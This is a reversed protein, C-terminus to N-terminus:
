DDGVSTSPAAVLKKAEDVYSLSQHRFYTNYLVAYHGNKKLLGEHDGEEIIKGEELVIIRDASRVTSLRHAILISTSDKLIMNLTEQIQSETFPDVSATAEDLIFIAPQRILVRMLSVLQRVGMSLRNGREGVETQLGDPLTELWDGDGIRHALMDIEEDTIDPDAYRINDAVTGSFLFPMQPVIGLQTRYSELDFSRLDDGDILIKGEQFEYFRAILKAISSKGAGTHGVLALNESPNIHLDFDELVPEDPKYQFGVHSFEIEGSLLRVTKNDHQVVLSEADILAFVREAASLGNQVQTWFASLNLIPFWFRDLSTIFLYWAGVTILGQVVNLGGVYVLIATGVGGLANLTPFVSSLVLGRRVNIKYSSTNVEDFEKYIREEQRFNKAVAIGTVAEKISANVNAMARFGERTVRRALSRFGLALLFIVPLMAILWLTLRRDISLLVLLLILAQFTQTVLDTILVVVQAFEQTDSTIRSVVRGSAFDDYFSLDHEASAKFADVRLQLMVDGVSRTILRRRIWNAGWIVVGLAIVVLSLALIRDPTDGEALMDVSQAVIIPVAASALAIVLIAITAVVLRKKYPRFYGMMRWLLDRDRYKRDYAEANLGSFFGM